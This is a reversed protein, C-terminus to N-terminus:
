SKRVKRRTRECSIKLDFNVKRDRRLNINDAKPNKEMQFFFLVAAFLINYEM